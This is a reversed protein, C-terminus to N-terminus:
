KGEAKTIAAQMKVGFGNYKALDPNTMVDDLTKAEKIARLLAASAERGLKCAELLEPACEILRSNGDNANYIDAVSITRNGGNATVARRGSDQNIEHLRWPGKTHKTM